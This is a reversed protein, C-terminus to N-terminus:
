ARRFVPEVTMHQELRYRNRLWDEETEHQWDSFLNSGILWKVQHGRCIAWEDRGVNLWGDNGGCHPCGGIGPDPQQELNRWELLEVVEGM